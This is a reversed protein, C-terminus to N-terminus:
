LCSVQTLRTPSGVLADCFLESTLYLTTLTTNTTLAEAIAKAGEDGISNGPPFNISRVAGEVVIIRYYSLVAPDCVPYKHSAHPDASLLM